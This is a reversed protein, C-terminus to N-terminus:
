VIRYHGIIMMSIGSIFMIISSRSLIKLRSDDFSDPPFIWMSILSIVTLISSIAASLIIGIIGIQLLLNM